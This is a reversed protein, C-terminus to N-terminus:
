PMGAKLPTRCVNIARVPKEPGHRPTIQRRGPPKNIIRLTGYLKENIHSPLVESKERIYKVPCWGHEPGPSNRQKPHQNTSKWSRESTNDLDVQKQRTHNEGKGRGHQGEDPEHPWTKYRTPLAYRVGHTEGRRPGMRRNVPLDKGRQNVPQVGDRIAGRVEVCGGEGVGGVEKSVGWDRDKRNEDRDSSSSQSGGRAKGRGSGTRLNTIKRERCVGKVIPKMKKGALDQVRAARTHGKRVRGHEDRYQKAQPWPARAYWPSLCQISRGEEAQFSPADHKAPSARQVHKAPIHSAPPQPRHSKTPHPAAKLKKVASRKLHATRRNHSGPADTGRKHGREQGRTVTWPRPHLRVIENKGQASPLIDPEPKKV